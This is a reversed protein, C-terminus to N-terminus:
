FLDLLQLRFYIHMPNCLHAALGPFPLFLMAALFFGTAPNAVSVLSVRRAATPETAM